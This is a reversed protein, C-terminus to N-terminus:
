GSLCMALWRHLTLPHASPTSFAEAWPSWVVVVAVSSTLWHGVQMQDGDLETLQVGGEGGDVANHLELFTTGEEYEAEDGTSADERRMAEQYEANNPDHLALHRMLNGRHAFQKHCHTCRHSQVCVSTYTCEKHWLFGGCPIFERTLLLSPRNVQITSICDWPRWMWVDGRSRATKGFMDGLISRSHVTFCYVSSCYFACFPWYELSNFYVVVYWHCVLM